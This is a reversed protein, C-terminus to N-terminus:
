ALSDMDAQLLISMGGSLDLGLQLVRQSRDKLDLIEDRYEGELLAFVASESGISRLADEVSWSRPLKRGELRYNERAVDALFSFKAPLEGGQQALRKLEEVDRTAQEQAYFRIQELSGAAIEKQQQSVLFYWQFTPYLFVGAIVVVFLIAILRARKSM